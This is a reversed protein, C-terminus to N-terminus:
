AGKDALPVAAHKEGVRLEGPQVAGQAGCSELPGWGNVLSFTGYM